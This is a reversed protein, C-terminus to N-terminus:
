CNGFPVAACRRKQRSLKAYIKAHDGGFHRNHDDRKGLAKEIRTVGLFVSLIEPTLEGGRNISQTRLM